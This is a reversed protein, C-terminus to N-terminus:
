ADKAAGMRIRPDLYSVILDTIINVVIFVLGLVLVVAVIANLDKRLIATIGYRSFGAWNFILEVLFANAFLSAFDLGMISVTPILSPKLLYKGVITRQPMGQSTELAIYDRNLNDTMASRTIRAEQGIGGMALALAPLIMHKVTDWFAAFNGTLLSDISMMGTLFPPAMIGPSLRGTTPLIKWLYGFLLMFIIAFVFSPTVVGLYALLRVGNDIWTGAFMAALVGLAVGLVAQLVGAFLVLELTAPLFERIDEAVARKTVLSQGFDGKVAGALWHGYQVYIPKDLHMEKTLNEVAWEPARAGLAMRVPDGPVARSILFIAISLGLIVFISHALRSSLYRGLSM